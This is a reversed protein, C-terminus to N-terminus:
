VAICQITINCCLQLQTANLLPFNGSSIGRAGKSEQRLECNSLVEGAMIQSSSLLSQGKIPFVLHWIKQSFFPNKDWKVSSILIVFIAKKHSIGFTRLFFHIRTETWVQSSSLLTKQSIGFTLNKDWNVNQCFKEGERLYPNCLHIGM